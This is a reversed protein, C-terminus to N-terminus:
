DRHPARRSGHRVLVAQAQSQVAASARWAFFRAKAERTAVVPDVIPAPYDRGLRLGALDRLMPPMAWPTHVDAGVIGALEPVWRRVFDGTPDHELGQKIPNYVRITNIGTTGSQMQVQSYHIGPEYDLFHPALAQAVARWDLWLPFTAVSVLMARMRFNLWGTARLMRMCADVFPLGTRGENWAALREADPLLPRVGRFAPVFDEFEISPQDELKQMFHDRWALRSTFSSIVGLWRGDAGREASLEARRRQAAQWCQRGSLSGFALHASLRSCAAPGTVPSSMARRYDVGRTTLFEQLSHHAAREGAAPVPDRAAWARVGVASPPPIVGREITLAHPSQRPPRRLPVRMTADWQEAWGDRSLLRRQVGGSPLERFPVARGTAWARVRRDRAYSLANGTEAHAWLGAFPQAAWLADFVDPCRGTRLLLPIGRRELRVRLESLTALLFDWHQRDADPATWLEPEFVFLGVVPGAQAAESLPAHDHIRLDRKFWVLHPLVLFSRRVRASPERVAM